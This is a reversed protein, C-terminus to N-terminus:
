TSLQLKNHENEQTDSIYSHNDEKKKQRKIKCKMYKGKQTCPNRSFYTLYRARMNTAYM